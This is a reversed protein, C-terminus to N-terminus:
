YQGGTSDNTKYTVSPETGRTTNSGSQQYESVVKTLFNPDKLENSTSPNPAKPITISVPFTDEYIQKPVVMFEGDASKSLYDGPKGRQFTRNPLPQGQRVVGFTKSMKYYEVGERIIPNVVDAFVWQGNLYVSVQTLPNKIKPFIDNESLDKM